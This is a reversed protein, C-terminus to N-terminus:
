KFLLRSLLRRLVTGADSGVGFYARFTFYVIRRDAVTSTSTQFGKSRSFAIDAMAAMEDLALTLDAKRGRCSAENISVSVCNQATLILTISYVLLKLLPLM